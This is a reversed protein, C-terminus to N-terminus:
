KGTEMLVDINKNNSIQNPCKLDTLHKSIVKDFPSQQSLQQFIDIISDVCEEQYPQIDYRFEKV